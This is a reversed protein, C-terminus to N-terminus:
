ATARSVYKKNTTVHNKKEKTGVSIIVNKNHWIKGSYITLNQKFYRTMNSLIEGYILKAIM